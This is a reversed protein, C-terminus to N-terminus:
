GFLRGLFGLGNEWWSKGPTTQSGTENAGSFRRIIDALTQNVGLKNQLDRNSQDMFMRQADLMNQRNRNLNDAMFNSTLKDTNGTIAQLNNFSNGRGAADFQRMIANNSNDIAHNLQTQEYPNVSNLNKGIATDYINKFVPNDTLNTNINNINKLANNLYDKFQDPITVDNRRIVNTTNSHSSM